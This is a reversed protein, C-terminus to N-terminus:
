GLTKKISYDANNKRSETIMEGLLGISVFQVGVIIALIGLFLLPRDSLFKNLFLREVALYVSIGTGVMFTSVGILGFFHLPQKTFRTIFLVTLLDFFGATFRSLGFKTTGYKRPSHNVAIEGVKFGQWQALVPLFRHLQGYVNLMETVERRYAKLGCNIDHIALGTMLRTVKNFFRSTNRKIFPDKRVKKWGSVLDYGEDLKKLLNPIEMPDDQLDADMTVIVEGGAKKFGLALAASKGYNRRFQIVRVRPDQENLKELLAMSNDTSGDDVFLFEISKELPRVATNLKAYLESLSEEENLLPIVVSIKVSGEAM